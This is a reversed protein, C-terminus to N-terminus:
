ENVLIFTKTFYAPNKIKSEYVTKKYRDQVLLHISDDATLKAYFKCKEKKIISRMMIERTNANDEEKALYVQKFQSYSLYQMINSKLVTSKEIKKLHKVKFVFNFLFYYCCISIAVSILVKIYTACSNLYIMCLAFICIFIVISIVQALTTARKSNRAM